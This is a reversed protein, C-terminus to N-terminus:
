SVSDTIQYLRQMEWITTNSCSCKWPLHWSNVESHQLMLSQPKSLMRDMRTSHPEHTKSLTYIYTDRHIHLLSLTLSRTQSPPLLHAKHSQWHTQSHTHIHIHSICFSSTNSLSRRCTDSLYFLSETSLVMNSLSFSLSLSLSCSFVFPFSTSFVHTLKFIFIFSISSTDM